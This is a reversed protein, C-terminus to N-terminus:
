RIIEDGDKPEGNVEIVERMRRKENSVLKGKKEMKKMMLVGLFHKFIEKLRMKVYKERLEIFREWYREVTEEDKYEIEIIDDVICNFKEYEILKYKEELIQILKPVTKYLIKPLKGDIM